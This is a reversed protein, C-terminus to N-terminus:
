RLWLIAGVVNIAVAVGLLLVGLVAGLTHEAPAITNDDLIRPQGPLSDVLVSDEPCEPPDYILQELPNDELRAPSTTMEEIEYTRGDVEFRFRLLYNQRGGEFAAPLVRKEVLTGYTVCGYALLRLCDRQRNLHYGLRLLLWLFIAGTILTLPTFIDHTSNSATFPSWWFVLSAPILKVLLTCTEGGFLVQRRVTAPVSRPARRVSSAGPPPERYPHKADTNPM